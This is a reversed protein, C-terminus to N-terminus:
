RQGGIKNASAKAIRNKQHKMGDLFGQGYDSYYEERFLNKIAKSFITLRDNLRELFFEVNVQISSIQSQIKQKLTKQIYFNPSFRKKKWVPKTM